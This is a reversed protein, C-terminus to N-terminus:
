VPLRRKSQTSKVVLCLHGISDRGLGFMKAYMKFLARLCGSRRWMTKLLSMSHRESKLWRKHWLTEGEM